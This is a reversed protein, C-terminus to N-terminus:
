AGCGVEPDAGEPGNTQYVNTVNAIASLNEGSETQALSEGDLKRVGRPVLFQFRYVVGPWKQQFLADIEDGTLYRAGQVTLQEAAKSETLWDELGIMIADIYQDCLDEHNHHMAGPVSSNAWVHCVCTQARVFYRAPNQGRGAGKVALVTDGAQRDREILIRSRFNDQEAYEPGFYVHIPFKRAQIATDLDLCMSQIM